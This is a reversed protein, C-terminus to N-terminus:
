LSRNQFRVWIGGSARLSVRFMPKVVTQRSAPYVEFRRLINALITLMEINAFKYGICNRPGASFPIYAFPHLASTAKPTFRNPDFVEPNPYIQEIRHTAYPFILVNSGTPLIINNIKVPQGIRRAILPVSPYLRLTEKLCQDLYTLERLDDLSPHSKTSFLNDVENRCILQYDQHQALMFLCFALASGVSDQGALMLTEAEEVIGDETFTPITASLEILNDLICIPHQEKQLAKRREHIM